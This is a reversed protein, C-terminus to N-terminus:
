RHWQWHMRHREGAIYRAHSGLASESRIFIKHRRQEGVGARQGENWRLHDVEPHLRKGDPVIIREVPDASPWGRNADADDAIDHWTTVDVLM